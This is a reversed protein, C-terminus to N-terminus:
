RLLNTDARKSPLLAHSRIRWRNASADGLSHVGPMEKRISVLANAVMATCVTLQTM